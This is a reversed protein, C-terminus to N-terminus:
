SVVRAWIRPGAVTPAGPPPDGEDSYLFIWGCRSDAARGSNLTPWSSTGSNYLVMEPLNPRLTLMTDLMSTIDVKNALDDQAQTWNYSDGAATGPALGTFKHTGMAVNATAAAFQDLTIQGKLATKANGWTFKKGAFSAASDAYGFVDADVPTAKTAFGNFGTGILGQVVTKFTSGLMKKLGNSAASDILLFEDADALSTKGTAAHVTSALITADFSGGGGGGGAGLSYPLSTWATVGDGVKGTHSDTEWGPEGLRLVPNAATWDAATGRKWRVRTITM